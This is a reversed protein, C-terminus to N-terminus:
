EWEGLDEVRTETVDEIIDHAHPVSVELADALQQDNFEGRATDGRHEMFASTDTNSDAPLPWDRASM